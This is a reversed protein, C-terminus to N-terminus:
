ILHVQKKNLTKQQLSNKNQLKQDVKEKEKDAMERVERHIKNAEAVREVVSLLKEQTQFLKINNNPKM